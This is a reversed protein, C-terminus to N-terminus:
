VQRTAMSKNNLFVMVGFDVLRVTRNRLMLRQHYAACEHCTDVLNQVRSMAPSRIGLPKLQHAVWAARDFGAVESLWDILLRMVGALPAAVIMGFIFGFTSGLVIDAPQIPRKMPKGYLWWYMFTLLLFFPFLFWASRVVRIVSSKTAICREFTAVMEPESVSSWLDVDLKVLATHLQSVNM